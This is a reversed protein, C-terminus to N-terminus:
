KVIVKHGNLIYLGKKTPKKDLRRGQLDYWKEDSQGLDVKIGDIDTTDGGDIIISRTSSKSSSNAPLFVKGAPLTGASVLVFEDKFLVYGERNAVTRDTTYVKLLNTEPPMGTGPTFTFNNITVDDRKLLVPVGQPIYAIQSAIASSNEMDTIVYATLGDPVAWDDEAVYSAWFYSDKFLDSVSQDPLAVINKFESWPTAAKYAEICGEPVHLTANAINSYAFAEVEVTPVKEAYCYVDTLGTTAGLSWSRILTVSNPIKVSTLGSCGVFANYDITKVNNPITTNKCGAILTNTATEIIANCNDRSDYVPNGEEVIISTLGTCTHLAFGFATVSKPITISILGECGIFAFHGVSTVNNPIITNKCGILLKNTATEIIANCNDRSDYVPNGEEVVINSLNKCDFFPSYPYDVGVGISILTVSQPITISTMGTCYNFAGSRISTVSYGNVTEPIIIEGECADTYGSVTYSGQANFTYKVGQDDTYEEISVIEKFDKWPAANSYAIVSGAPVHLVIAGPCWRFADDATTPVNEAYCYVDTLGSNGSFACGGIHTVSAPIVLSTLGCGDFAFQGISTVSNPITVSTLGSCNMFAHDGISTVSNPIVSMNGGAILTNTATEIIANCNDRSDYKPNGEEVILSSMNGDFPNSFEGGYFNPLLMEYFYVVSKPITISTLGSCGFFAGGGISTVSNPITISTLGSCNNFALGGISTVSNPITISTLSSCGAFAWEGISTVSNPITISTLGTCGSFANHGISTVTNPIITNKCGLFLSNSATSIIANCNDRSDFAPNGDEVVISSLNSDFPLNFSGMWGISGMSTVSKPITISTLGTCGSLAGGLINTVSCGNVTEPIIIAGTCADTHGSVSYTQGDDNLTYKVGQEDTYEQDPLAVIEKFGSWPGAATYAAISGEPVHLSVNSINCDYFASVDTDPVGAAYCFVDTMEVNGSFALSGISTVSSPISLVTLADGSFAREGIITVGEPIVTNKCGVILTNSNTEIIANCNNHSDYKENDSAVQISELKECGEFAMTEINTITSPIVISTIGSNMFARYGITTVSAPFSTNKCGRIMKNSSKEIIANCNDRSDYMTNGDAVNISLLGNCYSFADNGISTVSAPITLSTLATGGFAWPGISTVSSPITVSALGSYYFAWDGISTVTSPIVSNKCGAILTNSSKEIIANCNDRSDYITNGAEVQISALAPCSGFADAGISTVSAPISLSSIGTNCFAWMGISTLGAPIPASSLNPCNEFAGQGISTVGVPIVVSTLSYCSSFAENSISTVSCGNVTSLIVVDGSYKSPNSTVEATHNATNLNYYIGDIEVADAYAVLPLFALLFILFLNKQKM